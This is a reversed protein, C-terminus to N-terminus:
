RKIASVCQGDLSGCATEPDQSPVTWTLEWIGVDKEGALAESVRARM